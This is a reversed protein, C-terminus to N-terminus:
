RCIKVLQPQKRNILTITQGNGIALADRTETLAPAAYHGRAIVLVEASRQASQAADAAGVKKVGFMRLGVRGPMDRIIRVSSRDRPRVIMRAGVTVILFYGHLALM